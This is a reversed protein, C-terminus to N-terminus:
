CGRCINLTRDFAANQQNVPNNPNTLDKESPVQNARPQPNGGPAEVLAQREVNMSPLAVPNRSGGLPTPAAIQPQPLTVMRGANGLGSPDVTANNIGGANGPGRPIGSIAVNGVGASGAPRSFAGMAGFGGHGGGHGGGGRAFSAAFPTLFMLLAIAVKVSVNSM